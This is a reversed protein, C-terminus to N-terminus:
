RTLKAVIRWRTVHGELNREETTAVRGPSTAALKALDVSDVAHPTAFELDLVCRSSRCEVQRAVVGDWGRITELSSLEISDAWRDDRVEQEFEEHRSAMIEDASPGDASPAEAAEESAAQVIPSAQGEVGSVVHSLKSVTELRLIAAEVRSVAHGIRSVAEALERENGLARHAPTKSGDRTDSLRGGVYGGVAAAVFAALLGLIILRM